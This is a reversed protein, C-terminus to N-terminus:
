ITKELIRKYDIEFHSASYIAKGNKILIAQPSEHEVEFKRAIANSIERYSLLDLFYKKVNEMEGSTHNRQLRDWAMWSTSCQSSHKFILVPHEKSSHELEELQVLSKLEIWNM